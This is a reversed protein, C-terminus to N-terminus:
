QRQTGSSPPPPKITSARGYFVMYLSGGALLAFGVFMHPAASFDTSLSTLNILGIEKASSALGGIAGFGFGLGVGVGAAKGMDATFSQGDFINTMGQHLAGRVAGGAAGAIGRGVTRRAVRAARQATTEANDPAGPRAGGPGEDPNRAVDAAVMEVGGEDAAAAAALPTLFDAALSLLGTFAGGAAGGIAAAGVAKGLQSWEWNGPPTTLGYYLGEFGASSAAMGIVGTSLGLALGSAVGSLTEAAIMGSAVSLAGGSVVTGVIMLLLFGVDLLAELGAGIQGDPDTLMTPVNGAYCYASPFQAAPDPALFRGTMPDFLRARFNYLGTERDLQRGTFGLPMFGARPESVAVTAGYADYAYAAAVQGSGDWAVRPSRLYDSWVSYREGGAALAVVGRPGYVLAQADGACDIVIPGLFGAHVSTTMPGDNVRKM